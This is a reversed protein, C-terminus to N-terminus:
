TWICFLEYVLINVKLAGYVILLSDINQLLIHVDLKQYYKQSGIAWVHKM